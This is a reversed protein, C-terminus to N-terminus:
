PLFPQSSVHVTSIQSLGSWPISPCASSVPDEVGEFDWGASKGALETTQDDKLGIYTPTLAPCALISSCLSVGFIWKGWLMQGERDLFSSPPHTGQGGQFSWPTLCTLSARLGCLFPSVCLPLPGRGSLELVVPLQWKAKFHELLNAPRQHEVVTLPDGPPRMRDTKEKRESGGM